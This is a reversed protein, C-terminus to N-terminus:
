QQYRTQNNYAHAAFPPIAPGTVTFEDMVDDLSYYGGSTLYEYAGLNFNSAATWNPATKSYPSSQVVTDNFYLKSVAGDWTITLKLAVGNGFLADETGQPVWYFQAATGGVRYSFLLYGSSIQTSLYFLHNTVDSDRVDFAYRTTAASTQRQAFSYRSKLYFSIQGQNVNFISGVTAGTFKYYANNTSNCCSQFYVGDGVQAPTFNVSGGSTVVVNGKFGAPGIPPTVISGNTVGSVEAADAHLQLLPQPGVWTAATTFTFDGPAAPTEQGDQSQPQYHYPTSAALGTLNV